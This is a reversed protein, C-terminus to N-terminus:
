PADAIWTIRRIRASNSSSCSSTRASCRGAISSSSARRFAVTSRLKPSDTSM